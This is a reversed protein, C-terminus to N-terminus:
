PIGEGLYLLDVSYVLASYILLFFFFLWFQLMWVIFSVVIFSIKSYANNKQTPIKMREIPTLCALYRQKINYKNSRDYIQPDDKIVMWKISDIDDYDPVLQDKWSKVKM